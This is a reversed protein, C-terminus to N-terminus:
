ESEVLTLQAAGTALAEMLAALIIEDCKAELQAQLEPENFSRAIDTGDFGFLECFEDARNCLGNNYLDYYCNAMQRMQDLAPRSPPCEGAVPVQKSLLAYIEQYKGKEEWYLNM